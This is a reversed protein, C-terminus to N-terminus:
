KAPKTMSGPESYKSILKQQKHIAIEELLLDYSEKNKQQLYERIDKDTIEIQTVDFTCSKCENLHFDSLSNYDGCVKEPIVRYKDSCIGCYIKHCRL